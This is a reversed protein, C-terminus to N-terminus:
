TPLPLVEIRTPQDIESSSPTAEAVKHISPPCTVIKEEVDLPLQMWNTSPQFEMDLRRQINYANEFLFAVLFHMRAIDDVTLNPDIAPPGQHQFHDLHIPSPPARHLVEDDM